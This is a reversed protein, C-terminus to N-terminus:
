KNPVFLSNRSKNKFYADDGVLPQVAMKAIDDMSTGAGFLSNGLLQNKGMISRQKIHNNILSKTMKGKALARKEQFTTSLRAGLDFKQRAIDQTKKRFHSRLPTVEDDLEDLKVDENKDVKKAIPPRSPAKRNMRNRIAKKKLKEREKQRKQQSKIREKELKFLGDKAKEMIVIFNQILKFLEEPRQGDEDLYGYFRAVSRSTTKANKLKTKVVAM